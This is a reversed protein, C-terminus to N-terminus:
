SDTSSLSHVSPSLPLLLPFPPDRIKAFNLTAVVINTAFILSDKFINSYGVIIVFRLM